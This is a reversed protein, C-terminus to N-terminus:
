SRAPRHPTRIETVALYKRKELLKWVPEPALVAEYEIPVPTRELSYLLRLTFNVV